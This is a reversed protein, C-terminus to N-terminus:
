EGKEADTEGGDAAPWSRVSVLAEMAKPCASERRQPKAARPLFWAGHVMCGAAALMQCGADVWTTQSGRSQAANQGKLSDRARARQLRNGIGLPDNFKKWGPSTLKLRRGDMGQGDPEAGRASLRSGAELTASRQADRGPGVVMPTENRSPCESVPGFNQTRQENRWLRSM